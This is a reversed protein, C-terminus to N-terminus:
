LRCRDFLDEERLERWVFQRDPLCSQHPVHLRQVFQSRLWPQRRFRRLLDPGLALGHEMGQRADGVGGDRVQQLDDAGPEQAVQHAAPHDLVVALSLGAEEAVLPCPYDPLLLLVEDYASGQATHVTLAYGLGVAGSMAAPDVALCGRRSRFACVTTPAQGPRRARVAIGPEGNWLDRGYDNRLTLVPEPPLLGLDGGTL